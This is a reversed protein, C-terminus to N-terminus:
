GGIRDTILKAIRKTHDVYNSSPNDFVGLGAELLIHEIEERGPLWAEYADIAQNWGSAYDFSYIFPVEEIVTIKKPRTVM